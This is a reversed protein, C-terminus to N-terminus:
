FIHTIVEPHERPGKQINSQMRPSKNVTSKSIFTSFLDKSWFFAIM